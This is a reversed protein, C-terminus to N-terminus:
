WEWGWYPKKGQKRGVDEPDIQKLQRRIYRNM